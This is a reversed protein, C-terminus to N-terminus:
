GCLGDFRDVLAADWDIVVLDTKEFSRQIRLVEAVQAESLKEPATETLLGAAERRQGELWATVDQAGDIETLCFVTYAEPAPPFETPGVM